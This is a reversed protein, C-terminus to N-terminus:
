NFLFVSGGAIKILTNRFRGFLACLAFLWFPVIKYDRKKHRIKGIAKGIAPSCKKAARKQKNGKDKAKDIAKGKAKDIAKTRTIHRKKHRIKPYGKRLNFAIRLKLAFRLLCFPRNQLFRM